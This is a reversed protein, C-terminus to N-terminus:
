HIKTKGFVLRRILAFILMTIGFGAMADTPFHAGVSIRGLMVLVSWAICLCWFLFEKDQLKRSVLPILSFVIAAAGWQSHGSPFSKIEEKEAVSALFEKGNISYWRTFLEERGDLARPRVRGWILKLSEIAFVSAIFTLGCIWALKQWGKKEEEKIKWAFITLGVVGFLHLILVWKPLYGYIFIGSATVTLAYYLICIVFVFIEKGSKGKKCTGLAICGSLLLAYAFPVATIDEMLQGFFNTENVVAKSIALDYFTALIFIIIFVALLGWKIGRQKQKSM